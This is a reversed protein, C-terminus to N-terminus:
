IKSVRINWNCEEGYKVCKAFFTKPSSEVVVYDVHKKISYEKIALTAENKGDFQVEIEFGYPQSLNIQPVDSLNCARMADFDILEM